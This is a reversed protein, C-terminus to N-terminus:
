LGAAILLFVYVGPSGSAASATILSEIEWLDTHCRWWVNSGVSSAVRVGAGHLSAAAAVDVKIVEDSDLFDSQWTAGLYSHEEM